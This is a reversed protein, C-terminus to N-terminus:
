EITIPISVKIRRALMWYMGRTKISEAIDADDATVVAQWDVIDNCPDPMCLTGDNQSFDLTAWFESECEANKAELLAAQVKEKQALRARALEHESRSTSVGIRKNAPFDAALTLWANSSAVDTVNQTLFTGVIHAIISGRWQSFSRDGLVGRSAELFSIVRAKWYHRENNGFVM